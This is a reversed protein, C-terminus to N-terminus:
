SLGHMFEPRKHSKKPEKAFNDFAVILKTIDTQRDTDMQGDAHFLEAGVPRFNIFNSTYPNEFIEGSFDLKV